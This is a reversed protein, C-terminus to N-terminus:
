MQVFQATQIYEGGKKETSWEESNPYKHFLWIHDYALIWILQTLHLDWSWKQKRLTRRKKEEIAETHHMGLHLDKGATSIIYYITLTLKAAHSSFKIGAFIIYVLRPKAWYDTRKKACDLYM